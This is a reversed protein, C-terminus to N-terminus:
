GLSRVIAQGIETQAISLPIVISLFSLALGITTAAHVRKLSVLDHLVLALIMVLEVAFFNTEATRVVSLPAGDAFLPWNMIRTVAAGIINISALLMLRKHIDPRRRLLVAAAVFGAFVVAGGLVLWAFQALPEIEGGDAISRRVSGILAMTWSMVVLIALGAAAWGMRRHLDTRGVGVLLAQSVGMAFWATLMAGHVYLFPSIPPVDFLARLYFTPAFGALVMTMIVLNMALFFRNRRRIAFRPVALAADNAM